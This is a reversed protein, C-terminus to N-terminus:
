GNVDGDKRRGYNCFGNNWVDIGDEAWLFCLGKDSYYPTYNQCERCRVVPVSDITPATQIAYDIGITFMGSDISNFADKLLYDHEHIRKQLESADILRM